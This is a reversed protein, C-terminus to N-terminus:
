SSPQDSSTPSNGAVAEALLDGSTNFNAVEGAAGLFAMFVPGNTVALMAVEAEDLPKEGAEPQLTAAVLAIQWVLDLPIVADIKYKAKLVTQWHQAKAAKEEPSLLMSRTLISTDARGKFIAIGGPYPVERTQEPPPNAILHRLSM